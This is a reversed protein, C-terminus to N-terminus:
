NWGSQNALYGLWLEGDYRFDQGTMLELDQRAQWAVAFDNDDLREVLARAVDMTRFNRLADTCAIRVDQSVDNQMHDVLADIAAPDPVNSLADAADLRVLTENEKLKELYLDTQGTVRSRNMARLAAARVTYDPDNSLYVYTKLVEGHRGFDYNAYKLIAERRIDASSPDFMRRAWYGPTSGSM